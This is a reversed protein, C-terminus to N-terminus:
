EYSLRWQPGMFAPAITRDMVRLCQLSMYGHISRARVWPWTSSVLSVTDDHTCAASCSNVCMPLLVVACVLWQRRMEWFLVYVRRDMLCRAVAVCLYRRGGAVCGSGGGGCGGCPLAVRGQAALLVGSGRTRLEDWGGGVGNRGPAIGGTPCGPSAPGCSLLGNTCKYLNVLLLRLPRSTYSIQRAPHCHQHQKCM